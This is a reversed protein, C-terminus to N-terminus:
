LQGNEIQLIIHNIMKDEGEADFGSKLNSGFVRAMQQWMFASLSGRLDKVIDYTTKGTERAIIKVLIKGQTVSLKKLEETYRQQLEDDKSKIYKKQDRKGSISDMAYTVEGFVQKALKAYPYVKKVDRVLKRYRVYEDHSQFVMPQAIVVPSMNILPLTDGGVVIGPLIYGLDSKAPIQSFGITAYIILFLSLAYNKMKYNYHEASSNQRQFM